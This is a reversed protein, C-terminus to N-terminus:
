PSDETLPDLERLDCPFPVWPVFGLLVGVLAAAAFDCGFAGTVGLAAPLFGAVLDALERLPCCVGLVVGLAVGLTVGLVRGLVWVGAAFM